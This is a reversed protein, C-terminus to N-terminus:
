QTRDYPASFSLMVMWTDTRINVRYKVAQGVLKKKLKNIEASFWAIINDVQITNNTGAM